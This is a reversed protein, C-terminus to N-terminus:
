RGPAERFYRIQVTSYYHPIEFHCRVCQLRGYAGIYYRGILRSSQPDGGSHGSAAGYGEYVTRHRSNDGYTPQFRFASGKASWGILDGTEFDWTTRTKAASHKSGVIAQRGDLDISSGFVDTSTVDRPQLEAEQVYPQNSQINTVTLFPEVTSLVSVRFEVCDACGNNTSYPVLLPHIDEFSSLFTIRWSIVYSKDLFHKERQVEVEGINRMSELAAKFADSSSDHQILPSLEEEIGLHNWIKLRFSGAAVIEDSRLQAIQIHPRSYFAYVKGKGLGQNHVGDTRFFERSNVDGRNGYDAFPAGVLLSRHSAALAEGFSQRHLHKVTFDRSYVDFDYDSSRLTTYLNWGVFGQGAVFSRRFAYVTELGPAGIFLVDDCLAVAEGFRHEPLMADDVSLRGQQGWRNTDKQFSYVYATAAGPAGILVTTDYRGYPTNIAISHGFNMNSTVDNTPPLMSQVFVWGDNNKKFIHASGAHSVSNSNDDIGSTQDSGVVAFNSRADFDVSVGYGKTLDQDDDIDNLVHYCLEEASNKNDQDDVISIATHLRGLQSAFMGRLNIHITVNEAPELIFDDNTKLFATISQQHPHYLGEYTLLEYDNIGQFDYQGNIFLSRREDSGYFQSRGLATTRTLLDVATKDYPTLELSRFSYLENIYYQLEDEGNRDLTRLSVLQFHGSSSRTVEIELTDGETVTFPEDVFNLDLFTTDYILAAGSNINVLHRNPAGVVAFSGDLAVSAGMLDQRQPMAPFLFAQETWIKSAEDFEFIHTKSRINQSIDSEVSVICSLSSKPSMECEFVPIKNGEKYFPEYSNFTIIWSYGGNSDSLVSKSVTIEDSHLDSEIIDRLQNANTDISLYPTSVNKEEKRWNLRFFSNSPHPCSPEECYIKVKQVPRPPSLRDKFDEIQGVVMKNGDMSVDWGFRDGELVNSPVLQQEIQFADNQDDRHYVYCAGVNRAKQEDSLQKYPACIAAKSDSLSISHGFHDDEELDDPIIAQSALFRRHNQSRRFVYVAGRGNSKQPCGVLISDQDADLSSGFRGGKIKDYNWNQDTLTDLIVWGDEVQEFIYVKGADQDFGPSGIIALANRSGTAPVFVSSWGFLAADTVDDRGDLPTFKEVEAWSPTCTLCEVSRKYIYVSGSQKGTAHALSTDKGMPAKTGNRSASISLSGETLNQSVIVIDEINGSNHEVTSLGGGDPTLFTMSVSTEIGSCFGRSLGDWQNPDISFLVRPFSHLQATEGYTGIALSKIEDLTADYPIFSSQFGRFGLAFFGDSAPGNCTLVQREPLGNVQKFPAGVLLYDDTISLAAGFLDNSDYDSAVLTVERAWVDGTRHFIDVAGSNLGDDGMHQEMWQAQTDERGKGSENEVKYGSNWGILRSNIELVPLNGMWSRGDEDILWGYETLKNVSVYAITWSVGSKGAENIFERRGTVRVENISDLSELAAALEEESSEYPVFRSYESGRFSVAFNGGLIGRGEFSTYPWVNAGIGGLGAGNIELQPINVDLGYESFHHSFFIVWRRGLEPIKNMLDTNEVQVSKVVIDLDEELAEKLLMASADYPIHRTQKNNSPNTIQFSGSLMNMHRTIIPPTIEVGKGVLGGGNTELIENTGSSDFFTVVWTFSNSSECASNISRSVSVLGVLDLESELVTKVKEATVNADLKITNSAFAYSEDVKCALEFTGSIIEGPDACTSFEQVSFVADQRDINTTILQVEHEITFAESYVTLVQIEHTPNRKRPAGVAVLNDRIAVAHGYSDGPERKGLEGQVEYEISIGVEIMEQSEMVGKPISAAYRVKYDKGRRGVKLEHFSAIGENVIWSKNGELYGGVPNLHLDADLTPNASSARIWGGNLQLSSVSSPLLEEDSWYDLRATADGLKATYKFQLTKDDLQSEYEALRDILGTEMKLTPIGHVSVPRSFQIHIFVTDASKCVSLNCSTIASVFSIYPVRSDISIDSSHGLSGTASPFPLDIIADITPRSSMQKISGQHVGDNGVYLAHADKYDLDFTSHDLKVVYDFVLKSSGSGRQYTAIGDDDGIDLLIYPEGTVVVTKSFELVIEITDGPSYIGDLNTSSVAIVRPQDTADVIIPDSDSRAFGLATPHPLSLNAETSPISSAAKISVGAGLEIDCRLPECIYNLNNGSFHGRLVTYVFILEDESSRQPDFVAKSGDSDDGVDLELFIDKGQTVVPRDFTVSITIEEGATYVCLPHCYPSVGKDSHVSVVRPQSPDLAITPALPEIDEIGGIFRADVNVGNGNVISCGSLCMVPSDSSDYLAWDLQSVRDDGTIYQFSIVNTGNGSSYVAESYTNLWLTPLGLIFVEDTFTVDIEVITGPSYVEADLTTRISEVTTTPSFSTDIYM